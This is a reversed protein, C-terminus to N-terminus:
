PAPIIRDEVLRAFLDRFMVETDICEGFGAQRLRITSVLVPPPTETRSYTGFTFDAYHHSQGLLASLDGVALDHRDAIRKWVDAKAPLYEGLKMRPGIAAECGLADAISPWVNQWVFVDGNTINFTQDRAGGATAAWRLARGLLRADVAELLSPPGGPFALPRGEERCIAAYAGIVPVINMAVGTVDGFIIQPRWITFTFGRAAARERLLDEQLWYFNDHPDRPWSERAPVPIPHLHVGYAKTGQLLSAHALRADAADLAHLLNSLMARNTEMQEPDRWGGVLGPKEYLAAYVLHTIGPRARIAELCAEGDILDVAVHELRPDEAV